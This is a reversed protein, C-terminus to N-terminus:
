EALKNSPISETQEQEAQTTELRAKALPSLDEIARIQLDDFWLEGDTLLERIQKNITSLRIEQHPCDEPIEFELRFPTWSEAGFFRESDALLRPPSNLCRLEWRLGGETILNYGRSVGTLAYAGPALLLPQALHKFPVRLLRFRIRLANRNEGEPRARAMEVRDIPTTQWNFGAGAGSTVLPLEFGGNFLIGLQQRQTEDLSNVWVLRAEELRGERMLRELYAQHEAQSLPVRSEGRLQYLKTLLDIDQLQRASDVFFPVWWPPPSEALGAFVEALTPDALLDRFSPFLIEGLRNDAGLAQTWHQFARVSQGRDLWYQALDQQYRSDTPRLAAVREMLRDAAELDGAVEAQSALALLPLPDTPNQAYAQELLTRGAAADQELLTLARQYLAASQRPYWELAQEAAVAGREGLDALHQSALGLAAIRWTLLVLVLVLLVQWLLRRLGIVRSAPPTAATTM